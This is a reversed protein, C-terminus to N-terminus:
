IIATPTRNFTLHIIPKSNKMSFGEIIENIENKVTKIFDTYEKKKEFDEINTDAIIEEPKEIGKTKAVAEDLSKSFATEQNKLFDVSYVSALKLGSNKVKSTKEAYKSKVNFKPLEEKKLFKTYAVKEGEDVKIIEYLNNNNSLYKDGVNVDDGKLFLVKNKTDGDYITYYSKTTDAAFTLTNTINSIPLFLAVFFLLLMKKIKDM